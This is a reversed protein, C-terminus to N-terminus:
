AKPKSSKVNEAEVHPSADAGAIGDQDAQHDRAQARGEEGQGIM